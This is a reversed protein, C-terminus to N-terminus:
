LLRSLSCFYAASVCRCRDDLCWVGLGLFLAWFGSGSVGFGGLEYLGRDSYNRRPRVYRSVVASFGDQPAWELEQSRTDYPPTMLSQFSLGRRGARTPTANCAIKTWHVDALPKACEVSPPRELVWVVVIAIFDRAYVCRKPELPSRRCRARPWPPNVDDV